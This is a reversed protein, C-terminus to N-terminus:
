IYDPLAKMAEASIGVFLKLSVDQVILAYSLSKRRGVQSNVPRIWKYDM